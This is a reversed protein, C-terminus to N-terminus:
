WQRFIALLSASIQSRGEALPILIEDHSGELPLVATLNILTSAIYKHEQMKNDTHMKNIQLMTFQNM